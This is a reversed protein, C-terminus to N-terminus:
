KAYKQYKRFIDEKLEVEILVGIETYETKIINSNEKIKSYVGSDSFPILMSTKIVSKNLESDIMSILDPINTKDKASVYIYPNRTVLTKEELLDSKNFVYLIPIDHVGIDKLVEDVVHIQDEYNPNSSDIVHLILNAEAIEELTSKFAEVLHHPLRDIFGVTDTLLFIHNNDLNIRRTQTELTAFLMDKEMVFKDRPTATLEIISNMLTSKGSNTYGTLAVTYIGNKKRQERQVRRDQVLDNLQKKLHTIRARLIRRDLELQQEGPGKSGTGSKQRSLYKYMGVVRPLFYRAQALEVQLMAEKTKARKAFIDLILVTRDIVKISLAKELNRIHSPSLEDNFIVLNADLANIADQLEKVKGEGIYYKATPTDRKQMIKDLVEVECANALNELEIMSEEVNENNSLDLGVIIAQEM